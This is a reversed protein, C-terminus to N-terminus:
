GFDESLDLTEGSICETVEIIDGITTPTIKYTFNGGVAGAYIEGRTALRRMFDDGEVAQRALIKPTIREKWDRFKQRQTESLANWIISM